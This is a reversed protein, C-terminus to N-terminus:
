KGTSGFGGKGRKTKTLKDANVMKVSEYPQMIGQAIKDGNTIKYDMKGLNVLVVKWEGRYSSDIVGGLVHLGHNAALGSKDRISVFYKNSFEAAISLPIIQIEGRKIEIDTSSYLDFGADGPSAYSPIIGEKSLIKFKIITM